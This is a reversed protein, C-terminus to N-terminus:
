AEVKSRIERVAEMEQSFLEIVQKVDPKWIQPALYEDWKPYITELHRTGNRLDLWAIAGMAAGQDFELDPRTLYYDLYRKLFNLGASSNFEALAVCYLSGAFCLDSRLLLRGIHDELSSFRKLAAFLAATIRPRWDNDTLLKEVLALTIEGYIERLSKLFAKDTGRFSVRYFPVVWKECDERSLLDIVSPIEISSFPSQHSVTAGRIHRLIGERESENM